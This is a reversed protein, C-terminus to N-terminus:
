QNPRVTQVRSARHATPEAIVDISFRHFVWFLFIAPIEQIKKRIRAATTSKLRSPNRTAEAPRKAANASEGSDAEEQQQEDDFGDLIDAEKNDSSYTQTKIIITTIRADKSILLNQYMPNDLARQKIISIDKDTEPWDELLDEVILKNGEGRTNRANILSTIDEIYPVDESLEDHLSKLKLLFDNNFIDPSSVAVMILEDRGFQNRFTNYDILAPDNKHMFGETSVDVTLKPIQSLIISILAITIFLTKYCNHYIKRAGFDFLEEIRERINTM